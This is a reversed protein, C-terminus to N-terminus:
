PRKRRVKRVEPIRSHIAEAAAQLGAAHGSWWHADRFDGALEAREASALSSERVVEIAKVASKLQRWGGRRMDVHLKVVVGLLVV